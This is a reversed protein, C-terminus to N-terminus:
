RRCPFVLDCGRFTTMSGRTFVEAPRDRLLLEGDRLGHIVVHELGGRRQVLDGHKAILQFRLAGCMGPVSAWARLAFSSAMAPLPDPLSGGRRRHRVLM